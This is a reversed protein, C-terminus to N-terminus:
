LIKLNTPNSGVVTKNHAFHEVLQVIIELKILFM